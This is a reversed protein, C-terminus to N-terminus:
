LSNERPELVSKIYRKGLIYRRYIRKKNVRNRYGEWGSLTAGEGNTFGSIFM